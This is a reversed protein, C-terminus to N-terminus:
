LGCMYEEDGEEGWNWVDYHYEKSLIEGSDEIKPVEPDNFVPLSDSIMVSENRVDVAVASPAVYVRKM